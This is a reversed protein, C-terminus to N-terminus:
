ARRDDHTRVLPGEPYTFTIRYLTPLFGRGGGCVFLTRLYCGAGSVVKAGGAVNTDVRLVNVRLGGSGRSLDVKSPMLGPCAGLNGM